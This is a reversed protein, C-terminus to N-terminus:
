WGDEILMQTESTGTSGGNELFTCFVKADGLSNFSRICDNGNREFVKYIGDENIVEYKSM